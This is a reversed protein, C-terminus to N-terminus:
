YLLYKNRLTKFENIENQWMSIISDFGQNESIMERLYKKGFLREISGRWSFEQPHNQAIISILKVGFEVPKFEKRDEITIRIGSCKANEYKPKVAKGPIEVPTFKQEKFSAGRIDSKILDHIIKESNLYPAGFLLFPFETGRGESINTGELFCAGPYVIATELDPINPSTPIWNLGTEDYYYEREWNKMKIIRLEAKIGDKLMKEENFLLALEGMTMGHMVPIPAIGVFSQLEKDVIPGDVNIGGIPNPRDLVIVPINNEAGAELTYFMTSIFTYFRVGVSQMDFILLDIDKLMQPTPKRTKGYVSYIKIGTEDTTDNLISGDANDGKFGHEPGFLAKIRIGPINLLTDAIHTGNRLLGTQNSVIGLSKGKLLELNESILVDAGTLVYPKTNQCYAFSTILILFLASFIKRNNM